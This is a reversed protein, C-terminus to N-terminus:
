TRVPGRSIRQAGFFARRSTLYRDAIARVRLIRSGKLPRNAAKNLRIKSL